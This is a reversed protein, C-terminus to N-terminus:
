KLLYKPILCREVLPRFRHILPGICVGFVHVDNVNSHLSCRNIPKFRAKGFNSDASDMCRRPHGTPLNLEVYRFRHAGRIRPRKIGGSKYKARAVRGPPLSLFRVDRDEGGEGGTGV